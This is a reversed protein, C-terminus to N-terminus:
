PRHGWFSQDQTKRPASRPGPAQHIKRGTNTLNRARLPEPSQGWFSHVKREEKKQSTGSTAWTSPSCKTRAIQLPKFDGSARVKVGSARSRPKQSPELGGSAKPSQHKDLPVGDHASPGGKFEDIDSWLPPPLPLSFLRGRRTAGCFLTPMNEM